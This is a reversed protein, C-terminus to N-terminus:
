PVGLLAAARRMLELVVREAIIRTEGSPGSVVYRAAAACVVLEIADRRQDRARYEDARKASELEARMDALQAAAQEPSM